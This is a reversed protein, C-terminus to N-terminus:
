CCGCPRGRMSQFGERVILPVMILAATSDAWGLELLLTQRRKSYRPWKGANHCPFTPLKEMAMIFPSSGPVPELTYARNSLSCRHLGAFKRTERTHASVGQPM